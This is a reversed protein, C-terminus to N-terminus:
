WCEETCEGLNNITVNDSKKVMNLEGSDLLLRSNGNNNITNLGFYKNGTTNNERINNYERISRITNEDLFAYYELGNDARNLKETRAEENNMFNIWNFGIERNQNVTKPFPNAMDIPRYIFKYGTVRGNETEYLKQKVNVNCTLDFTWNNGKLVNIKGGSKAYVPFAQNDPYKLPIYYKYGGDKQHSEDCIGYTVYAPFTRSNINKERLSICAHNQTFNVWSSSGGGDATITGIDDKNDNLTEDNSDKSLVSPSPRQYSFQEAALAKINSKVKDKDSETCSCTSPKCSYKTITNGHSDKKCNGDRDKECGDSQMTKVSCTCTVEEEQGPAKCFDMSASGNYGLNFSFGGGAYQERPNVGVNLTGNETFTIVGSGSITPSTTECINPITQSSSFSTSYAKNYTSSYHHGSCGSAIITSGSSEACTKPEEEEEDCPIGNYTVDVKLPQFLWKGDYYEQSSDTAVQDWNRNVTASIKNGNAVFSVETGSENAGIFYKNAFENASVGGISVSGSDSMSIESCNEWVYDDENGSNLCQTDSPDCWATSAGTTCNSVKQNSFYNQTDTSSWNYSVNVDGITVNNGWEEPAQFTTNDDAIATGAKQDTMNIGKIFYYTVTKSCTRAEATNSNLTFIAIPIILLSLYVSIRIIKKLSM